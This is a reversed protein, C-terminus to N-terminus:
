FEWKIQGVQGQITLVLDSVHTHACKFPISKDSGSWDNLLMGKSFNGKPIM